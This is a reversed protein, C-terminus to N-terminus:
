RVGAAPLGLEPGLASRCRGLVHMAARAGTAVRALESLQGPHLLLSAIVAALNVGGDPKMAIVAAPPLSQGVPDSVVRLAAFARGAGRALAAALHSEMDAAVAGTAQHLQAKDAPRVLPADVGALPRPDADALLDRMRGSWGPDTPYRNGGSVIEDPIVLSGAAQGAILGAALGFSLVADAGDSLARALEAELRVPSGGAAILRGAAPSAIRAEALLGTVIVLFRRGM